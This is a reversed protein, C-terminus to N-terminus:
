YKRRKIKIYNSVINESQEMKRRRYDKVFSLIIVGAAVAFAAILVSLIVTMLVSSGDSNKKDTLRVSAMFEGILTPDTGFYTFTYLKKDAVTVYIVSYKGDEVSSQKLYVNSELEVTSYGNEFLKRGVPAISEASLGKFSGMELSFDTETSRIQIQQSGDSSMVAAVLGEVTSSESLDDSTFVSFDEGIDFSVGGIKHGVTKASATIASFGFILASLFLCVTRKM